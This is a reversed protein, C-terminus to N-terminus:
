TKSSAACNTRLCHNSDLDDLEGRLKARMTSRRDQIPPDLGCRERRRVWRTIAQGILLQEFLDEWTVHGVLKGVPRDRRVATGKASEISISSGM